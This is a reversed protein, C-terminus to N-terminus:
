YVENATQSSRIKGNEVTLKYSIADGAWSKIYFDAGPAVKQVVFPGYTLSKGKQVVGSARDAEIFYAPGNGVVHAKGDPELLVAAREQVGIGHIRLGPPPLPKGDPENLRALFVLLRGMRDRRAFHTDTIIGKLIPIDLFGRVLSVRSGFPDAIATKGDLNPDDPKDGQASYAYEGMVALGASTGGIPVGRKVAENLASQVPSHMWFNIYNAQDGGAIFIAAAHSITEAVFPNEAAKRSPVILTSVSNLHCIGRLYANYDDDGRARLVVMDGGDARDCLFKFAEDLDKGGGMLAFGARPKAAVNAPEGSRIYSYRTNQGSASCAGALLLAFLPFPWVRKM